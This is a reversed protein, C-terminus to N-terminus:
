ATSRVYSFILDALPLMMDNLTPCSLYTSLLNSLMGAKGYQHECNVQDGGVVM